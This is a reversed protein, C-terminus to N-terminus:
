FQGVLRVGATGQLPQWDPLIQMSLGKSGVEQKLLKYKWGSSAGRLYIATALGAVGVGILTTTLGQKRYEDAIFPYTTTRAKQFYEVRYAEYEERSIEKKLYATGIRDLQEGVQRNAEEVKLILSRSFRNSSPSTINYFITQSNVYAKAKSEAGITKLLGAVMLAVGGTGMITGWVKGKSSKRRYKEMDKLLQENTSNSYGSLFVEQKSGATILVPTDSRSLKAKPPKQPTTVSPAIALPMPASAIFNEVEGNAYLITVVDDKKIIVLPGDLNSFKQYKITTEDIEKIVAEIKTNDRKVITDPKRTQGLCVSTILLLCILFRLSSFM